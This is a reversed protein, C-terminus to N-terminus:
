NITVLMARPRPAHSSGVRYMYTGPRRVKSNQRQVMDPVLVLWLRLEENRKSSCCSAIEPLM